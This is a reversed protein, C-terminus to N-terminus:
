GFGITIVVPRLGLILAINMMPAWALAPVLIVVAILTSRALTARLPALLAISSMSFYSAAAPLEFGIM